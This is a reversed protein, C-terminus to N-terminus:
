RVYAGPIPRDESTGFQVGTFGATSRLLYWVGTSPRFVAVDAKGDGDYDAAAPKDNVTGFQVADFNQAAIGTPRAIYWVGNSPRFVAINTKGDGDFDAPAPIDTVLGFPQQITQNNSSNVVYWVGNSPRFVAADLKGDGDYDGTVPKDGLTGWPIVTFGANAVSSARYIFYSQGGVASASRYVALDAIGDGDWDGSVPVDGATGFPIDRFSNDSSYTIYFYAQTGAGPVVDRFVALDARGDGDYDAPALQDTAQGFQFANFANNRSFLRYWFGNSPRFVAIDARGDGDFDFPAFPARVPVVSLRAAGLRIVNAIASFDGGIFIKDDSLRVITRVQNNAGVPFFSTDLTGDARLRALNSRLVSGVASFNGGIILSGDSQVSIANVTGSVNPFRFANDLTGDANLRILGAGGPIVFKNNPLLEINTVPSINGANFSADLTGDANLRILNARSFGNVGTFSGGAIIKGDPQILLRRVTAIGFSSNGLVPNFNGDVSGDANLRAIGNRTLGGVNTFAGGILIKGDAQRVISYVTGDANPNFTTDLSGDSNLRTIKGQGTENFTAFEGGVLIKGDPQVLLKEIMGDFGSGTDFTQDLTGDPNLRAIGSRPFGGVRNFDGAVIIKNDPQIELTSVSGGIGYNVVFSSILSGGDSLRAFRGVKAGNEEFVGRLVINEAGDIVFKNISILNAPPAFRFDLSADSNYVVFRNVSGVPAIPNGVAGIGVLIKGNSFLEIGTAAEYNQFVDPPAFNLDVNGAPLLKAVNIRSVANVTNFSGVIFISGDASVEFDNILHGNLFPGSSGALSPSEFAADRTGDANYRRLNAANVSGLINTGVLIKDEPLVVVKTVSEFSSRGGALSIAAFTTDFSGDANLRRLSGFIAGGSSNYISIIIKGDPQVAYVGASIFQPIVIAGNLPSNLNFSIDVSGDPNLRKIRAASASNNPNSVSGAVIIKGDPQIVTTGITFDYVACDFSTDLAGDPNIRAINNKVVGNVVQFGGYTLIKGDPQLTFNGGDVDKSIVPNFSAAVGSTQANITSVLVFAIFFLQVFVGPRKSFLQYNNM